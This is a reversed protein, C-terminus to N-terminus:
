LQKAGILLAETRKQDHIDTSVGVWKVINGNTDRLPMNRQLFWRYEGDFRRLRTESENPEGSALITRWRELVAPLDEPPVTAQWGCGLAQEESLGTYEFWWKNYFDIDGDPRATWVLARIADVVAMLELQEGRDDQGPSM